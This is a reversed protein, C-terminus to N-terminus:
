WIYAQRKGQSETHDPTIRHSGTPGHQSTGRSEKRDVPAASALCTSDPNRGSLFGFSKGFARVDKKQKLREFLSEFRRARGMVQLHIPLYCPQYYTLLYM